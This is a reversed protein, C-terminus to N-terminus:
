RRGPYTRMVSNSRSTQLPGLRQSAPVSMSPCCSMLSRTAVMTGLLWIISSRTGVDCRANLPTILGSSADSAQPTPTSPSSAPGTSPSGPTSAPALSWSTMVAVVVASAFLLPIRVGLRTSFGM